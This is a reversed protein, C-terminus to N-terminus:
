ELLLTHAKGQHLNKKKNKGLLARETCKELYDKGRREQIM